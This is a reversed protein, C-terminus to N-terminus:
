ITLWLNKYNLFLKIKKRLVMLAIVAHTKVATAGSATITHWLFGFTM